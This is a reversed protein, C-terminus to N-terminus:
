GAEQSLGTCSKMGMLSTVVSKCVATNKRMSSPDGLLAADPHGHRSIAALCLASHTHCHTFCDSCTFPHCLRCLSAIHFSLAPRGSLNHLWAYGMTAEFVVWPILCPWLKHLGGDVIVQGFTTADNFDLPGLHAARPQQQCGYALALFLMFIQLLDSLATYGHSSCICLCIRNRCKSIVQHMNTTSQVTNSHSFGPIIIGSATSIRIRWPMCIQSISVHWSQNVVHVGSITAAHIGCCAQVQICLSSKPACCSNHLLKTCALPGSVQFPVPLCSHM